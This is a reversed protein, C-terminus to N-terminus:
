DGITQLNSKIMGIGEVLSAVEGTPIKGQEIHKAMRDLLRFARVATYVICIIEERDLNAKARYDNIDLSTVVALPPTYGPHGTCM